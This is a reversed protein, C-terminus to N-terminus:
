ENTTGDILTRLYKELHERQEKPARIARLINSYVSRQVNLRDNKLTSNDMNDMQQEVAILQAQCFRELKGITIEGESLIREWGDFTDQEDKSLETVDKINRKALLEKLINRM